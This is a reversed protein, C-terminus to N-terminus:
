RTCPIAVLLLLKEAKECAPENGGRRVGQVREKESRAPLHERSRVGHLREKAWRAPLDKGRRVGQVHETDSRAPLHEGRRVGQMPEKAPQAPLHGREAAVKGLARGAALRQQAMTPAGSSRAAAAGDGGAEM